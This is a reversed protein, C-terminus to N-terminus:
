IQSESPQNMILTLDRALTASLIAIFCDSYLTVIAHVFGMIVERSGLDVKVVKRDVEILFVTCKITSYEVVLNSHM